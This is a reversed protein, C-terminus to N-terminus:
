ELRRQAMDVGALAGAHRLRELIGPDAAMEVDLHRDGTRVAGRAPDGLLPADAVIGAPRGIRIVPTM